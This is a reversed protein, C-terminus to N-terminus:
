IHQVNYSSRQKVTQGCFQLPIGVVSYFVSVPHTVNTCFKLFLPNIM